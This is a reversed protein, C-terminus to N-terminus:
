EKYNSRVEEEKLLVYSSPVYGTQGDENRAKWWHENDPSESIFQLLQGLSFLVSYTQCVKWFKIKVSGKKVSLEPFGGPQEPNANYDFCAILVKSIQQVTM